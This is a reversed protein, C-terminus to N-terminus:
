RRWRQSVFMVVLILGGIIVFGMAYFELFRVWSGGNKRTAYFACIAAVMSAWSSLGAWVFALLQRCGYWLGGFYM